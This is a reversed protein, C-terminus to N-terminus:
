YIEPVFLANGKDDYISAEMGNYYWSDDSPEGDATIEWHEIVCRHVFGDGDVLEVYLELTSGFPIEFDRDIQHYFHYSSGNYDEAYLAEIEHVMEDDYPETNLPINTRNIEVGDMEEVLSISEVEFQREYCDAHINIDGERQWVYTDSATSSRRGYGGSSFDATVSPMYEIRPEFFWDLTETRAIGNETFVVKSVTTTGFIPIDTELVYEGNKLEMPMEEDNVTILAETIGPSHEKPIVNCRLQVTQDDIDHGTYTWDSGTLLSAQETLKQEIYNHINNNNSEVNSIRSSINSEMYAIQDKLANIQFLCIVVLLCSIVAIINSWNKKM